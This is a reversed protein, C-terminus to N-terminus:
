RRTQSGSRGQKHQLVTKAGGIVLLAGGIWPLFKSHLALGGVLLAIGVIFTVVPNRGFLSIM